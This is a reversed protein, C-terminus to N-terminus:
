FEFRAGIQINRPSTVSGNWKGFDPSSPDTTFAQGGWQGSSVFNHWNFLNFFEGRLQFRMRETIRFDKYIALDQNKYGYARFNSVRPGTGWFFNFADTPELASKNFLTQGSGPDFSGKDQAFINESLFGPICGARFQGPVNCYGSRFYFPLGSSFRTISAISWGGLALDAARSTSMWRKGHGLPLEYVFTVNFVQPVDDSALSKNRQREFPSITGSLGSWTLAEPDVHGADTILKSLTYAALLYTGQSFRKEVKAQFSHYTSNGANENLGFLASCFQPYPLLAQAVSPGCGADLLQQAWGPYPAAVGNLTDQGPAFEDFLQNGMSLYRPDLANLPVLQSPLRTGKTGVYATSVLIDAGLQREISLNWQQSYTLRNADFPRYLTGRGNRFGADIFPPLQDAPVAPFGDSLDFAPVLGGQTSGFSIDANFGDLNGGGGWNPYFAQTYFIGYGTRVVTKDNVAYAIGIRPGFGKKFTEEPRRSGFSAAGYDSGAFALRGPRGGAAPNAGIPDFFSLRNYKEATPRFMDWRLGLNLTLKPTAKWTDGVHWIFADARMYWASVTRFAASASAVQELLFSAIPNGSNIGRIQTAGRDFWFSGSLNGDTHFNQGINRYEGGFKWTHKGKVWTVLDNAVYAPRTTKNGTNIGDSAGFGAFGDSFDIAPPYRTNDPVGPIRPLLDVSEANLVGYGENRNLYGFAFHNLVTPSITYDYNIREIISDQPKSLNENAIEIPLTTAFKPPAWQHWYTAAIHHKDAIYTDIKILGHLADGLITDPVPQPVLYNNLPKDNTPQPLYKFWALALSNAFQSPCIVNQVGGCQFQDRVIEGGVIRTSSPDFIPILAGTDDRWDTFDGARQKLSPITLTPRNVGGRIYFKEWNTYFYNKMWSSWAIPLKVPGGIAGGFDHELDKPRKDAGFQRANLNTNRHYEYLSGHFDNTGSRTTVMINASTTSGYQPEYNATLVKFESIMDPTMRFDWFSIMGTQSMTGQQMSVGDMIAEDGSQLGGNIRADFANNTGGTSVGPLLVAFQAANRPSGSVILPLDNITEPAVGEQRTANEFNLPSADAVVEISQEVTGLELKVDLRVLQNLTLTIGRQVFPRFGTASAKLEYTGTILNPFSYLGDPGSTTNATTGTDTNTVSVEANPVPANNPDLVTGSITSRFQALATGTMLALALVFIFIRSQTKEM